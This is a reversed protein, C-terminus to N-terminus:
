LGDEHRVFKEYRVNIFHFIYGLRIIDRNGGIVPTM